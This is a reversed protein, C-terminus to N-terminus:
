HSGIPKKSNRVPRTRGPKRRVSQQPDKPELKQHLHQKARSLVATKKSQPVARVNGARRVRKVDKDGMKLDMDEYDLPFKLVTSRKKIVLYVGSLEALVLIMLLGITIMQLTTEM